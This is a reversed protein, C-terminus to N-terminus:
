SADLVAIVLCFLEAATFCMARGLWRTKTKLTRSNSDFAQALDRVSYLLFEGPRLRLWETAYSKMPDPVVRFNQVRYAWIGYGIAVLWFLLAAAFWLVSATALEAHRLATTVGLLGSSVSFVTVIKADVATLCDLCLTNATVAEEYALALTADDFSARWTVAEDAAM